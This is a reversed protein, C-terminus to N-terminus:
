KTCCVTTQQAISINQVSTTGSATCQVNSPVNPTFKHSHFSQSNAGPTDECNGDVKVTFGAQGSCDFSSYYALSGGSCQGTVGGCGCNSEDCTFTVGTGVPHSVPWEKPCDVQGPAAICALFGHGPDSPCLQDNCQPIITATCARHTTGGVKTPDTTVKGACDLNQANQQPPTYQRYNGNSFPGLYGDGKCNNNNGVFYTGIEQGCTMGAEKDGIAYDITGNGGCSGGNTITCGCSCASPDVQENEIVDVPTGFGTPCDAGNPGYALFTFGVPVPLCGTPSCADVTTADTDGFLTADGGADQASGDDDGPPPTSADAANATAEPAADVVNSGVSLDGVGTLLTCAAAGAGLGCAFIARFLWSSAM